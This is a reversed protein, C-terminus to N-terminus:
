HTQLGVLVLGVREALARALDFPPPGDILWRSVTGFYVSTLVEAAAGPDAASRFEGQEQGRQIAAAPVARIYLFIETPTLSQLMARTLDRERENMEALVSFYRLVVARASEDPAVGEGIAALEDRRGQGWARAFDTKHPFHNLVTQRAVDAREAIQDITTDAFGNAAFLELAASLLRERM